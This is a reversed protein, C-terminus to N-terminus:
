GAHREGADAIREALQPGHPLRGMASLLEIGGAACATVSAASFNGNGALPTETKGRADPPAAVTNRMPQRQQRDSTVEAVVLLSGPRNSRM